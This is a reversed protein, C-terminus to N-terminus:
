LKKACSKALLNGGGRKLVGGRSEQSLLFPPSLPITERTKKAGARCTQKLLKELHNMGRHRFIKVKAKSLRIGDIISAHNLEDSFIVTDTGAVAPIIGTNAAYGSNFVLAAETKKFNAIRQELKKHPMYSGSILRSSGSGFGYKRLAAAATQIIRHYQSLGLYDNSSFNIYRKGNIFIEAGSSSEIF